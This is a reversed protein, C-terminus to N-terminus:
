LSEYVAVGLGDPGVHCALLPDYEIVPFEWDPLVLSLHDILEGILADDASTLPGRLIVVEQPAAFEAVFNALKELAMPLTRVKELPLIDGEEFLLIPKIHLMTGLIAQALDIRGGSELYDLRNVFFASYIRPLMGRVQRVVEELPQGQHSIEVAAKVLLGLGWSASLSDLINIQCRGLFPQTAAEASAYADNLKGSSLIVLIEETTRHLKEYARRFYRAPITVQAKMAPGQAMLELLRTPREGPRILFQEDGFRIEVPLVTIRNAAIFEPELYASIDTIIRVNTM